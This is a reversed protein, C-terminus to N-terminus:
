EDDLMPKIVDVLFRRTRKQIGRRKSERPGAINLKFPRNSCDRICIAIWHRAKEISGSRGIDLVLHPKMAAKAFDVTKKTGGTVPLTTDLVLTADSRCVNTRTRPLYSYSCSQTMKARYMENLSGNETRWGKPVEGGWELGLDIAAHLGGQDAGTQGGSILVLDEKNMLM